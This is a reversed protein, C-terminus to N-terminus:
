LLGKGALRLYYGAIMRHYTKLGPDVEDQLFEQFSTHYVRYLREREKNFEEDLFERWERIVEWVKQTPLDTFAAVQDILVAEKVAALMCVVPQYFQEFTEANKSQMQRWHSRYYGLLGEPLEDLRGEVFRGAKIAPLVHHLYMFNGESKALIQDTFQEPTVKWASIRQQMQEDPLYFNIYSRADHLNDESTAQLELVGPHLVELRIDHKPRTTVVFFVQEPLNSPLYLVNARSPLELIDAEDLADIAIILREGAALKESAEGLLQNLFAGDKEADPPWELHDLAFRAILQACVSKLFQRPKNIAQLAINFHHIYGREKVLYAMLASKGIGPEGKIIFYGSQQNEDALFADLAKFVFERGVFNKTREAILSDFWRSLEPPRAKFTREQQRVQQILSACIAKKEQGVRDQAAQLVAELSSRGDRLTGYQALTHVLLRFFQETPGEFVVKDELEELLATYILARRGANDHINPLSKLLEVIQNHLEM